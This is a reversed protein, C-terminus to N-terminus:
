RCRAACRLAGGHPLFECRRPVKDRMLVGAARRTPRRARRDVRAGAERRRFGRVRRPGCIWRVNAHAEARAGDGPCPM